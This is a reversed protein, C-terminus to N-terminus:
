MVEVPAGGQAASQRVALAIAQDHRAQAAGYEPEGRTRVAQVLSMLCDAVAIMDDSLAHGVFQNRWEVPPDVNAIIADLTEGAPVAYTRREIPIPLASKGDDTLLTLHNGIAMGKEAFFHTTRQWRLASDQGLTTWDIHGLRGDAFHLIGHEWREERPGCVGSYFAYHSATMNSSTAGQVRVVPVDFGIYNRILNAAHYGFTLGDTYASVVRGFLGAKILATKIREMPWRFCQEAVEVKLGNNSATRIIADAESLDAAIPTELLVHLGAQVARLGVAGNARGSVTVIAAQAQTERVLQQVDIYSPVGLEQGLPGAHEASRSWVGALEVTDRLM